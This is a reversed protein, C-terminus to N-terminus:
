KTVNFTMTLNCISGDNMVLGWTTTFTGDGTPTKMDITVTYTGNPAVDSKLDYLDGKTQIKEGSIYKFDASDATWAKTGNNKLSWSGDFATDVKLTDSSKPSVSLILCSYEPPTETPTKTWPIFVRTATATPAPTGTPAPTFTPQLTATPTVPTATPATQTLNAIVTQAAQTSIADFTPRPDITPISTPILTPAPGCGTLSVLGALAAIAALTRWATIQAWGKTKFFM